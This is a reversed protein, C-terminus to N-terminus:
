NTAQATIISPLIAVSLENIEEDKTKPHEGLALGYDSYLDYYNIANTGEKLSRKMLVEIARDSLIWIGIDM